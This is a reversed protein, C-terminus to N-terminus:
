QLSNPSVPLGVFLPILSELPTKEASFGRNRLYQFKVRIAPAAREAFRCRGSRLRLFVRGRPGDDPLGAGPSRAGRIRGGPLAQVRRLNTSRPLGIEALTRRVSLSSGEVLRIGELKESASVRVGRGRAFRLGDRKKQASPERAGDRGGAGQAPREGQSGWFRAPARRESRTEWCASRARRWFNRAGAATSIRSFEKKAM